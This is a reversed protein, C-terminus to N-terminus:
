ETDSLIDYHRSSSSNSFRSMCEPMRWRGETDQMRRGQGTKNRIHDEILKGDLDFCIAGTRALSCIAGAAEVAAACEARTTSSDNPLVRAVEVLIKWKLKETSEEIREDIQIVYASGVKNKIQASCEASM